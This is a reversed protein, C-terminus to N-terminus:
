YRFHRLVMRECLVPCQLSIARYALEAGSMAYASLSQVQAVQQVPVVMCRLDTGSMAYAARLGLPLKTGPDADPLNFAEPFVDM